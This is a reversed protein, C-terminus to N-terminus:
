LICSMGQHHVTDRESEKIGEAQLEEVIEGLDYGVDDLIQLDLSGCELLAM